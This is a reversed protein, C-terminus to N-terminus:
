KHVHTPLGAGYMEPASFLLSLKCISTCKVPWCICMSYPHKALSPWKTNPILGPYGSYHWCLAPLKYENLQPFVKATSYPRSATLDLTSSLDLMEIPAIVSILGLSKASPTLASFFVNKKIWWKIARVQDWHLFHVGTFKPPWNAVSPAFTATIFYKNNQHFGCWLIGTFGLGLRVHKWKENWREENERKKNFKYTQNDIISPIELKGVQFISSTLTNYSFPTFHLNENIEALIFRKWQEM